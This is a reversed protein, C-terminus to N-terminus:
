IVPKVQFREIHGSRSRHATTDGDLANESELWSVVEPHAWIEFRQGPHGNRARRLESLANLAVSEASLVTGSGGCCPCPMHTLAYVRQRVKKRTMEVLGLATMGLVNSRTRDSRLARELEAVVERQHEEDMMDIFDIVIIGGIDRLRLQRAIEAAAEMNTKFITTELDRAGTFKGTNVDVVTLAETQDFILTGGSKLWVKRAFCKEIQGELHYADFVDAGEESEQVRSLLGPTLYSVMERVRQAAGQGSVAFSTVDDGFLDRVARLLLDSDRHVIRPAQTYGATAVLQRWLATLMAIEKEMEERGAGRAATRVIIGAGPGRLEEVCDRLRQRESEDGIRRSVGVYDVNPMFVLLRGPLTIHNTIRAGKNAVPDKVVQVVLEQGKKVMRTISVPKGPGRVEEQGDFEFDDSNLAVDGAYLFANRDLGIDVFAAEMGPLVDTVRGKYINGVLRERGPREVYYECLCGDELLAVRVQYPGADAILTKNM